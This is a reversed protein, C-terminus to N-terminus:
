NVDATEKLCGCPSLLSSLALKCNIVAQNYGQPTLLSQVVTFVQTLYQKGDPSPTETSPLRAQLASYATQPTQWGSPWGNATGFDVDAPYWYLAGNIAAGGGILCGAFVSIDNCWWYPNSADFM